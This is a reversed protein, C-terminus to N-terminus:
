ASDKKICPCVDLAMLHVSCYDVMVGAEILQLPKDVCRMQTCLLVMGPDGPMTVDVMLEGCRTCKHATVFRRTTVVRPADPTTV